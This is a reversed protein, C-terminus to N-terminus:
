GGEDHPGFVQRQLIKGLEGSRDRQGDDGIPQAGVDDLEVGAFLFKPFSPHVGAVFKVAWRPQLRVASLIM